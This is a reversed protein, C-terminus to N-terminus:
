SKICGALRQLRPSVALVIAEPPPPPLPLTTWCGNDQLTLRWRLTVGPHRPLRIVTSCRYVDTALKTCGRPEFKAKGYLGAIAADFSETTQADLPRRQHVVSAAVAALIGVLVLVVGAAM